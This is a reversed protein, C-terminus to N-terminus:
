LKAEARPPAGGCRDSLANSIPPQVDHERRGACASVWEALVLAWRSAGAQNTGNSSRTVPAVIGDEAPCPVGHERSGRTTSVLSTVLQLFL